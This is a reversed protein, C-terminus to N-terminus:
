ALRHLGNSADVASEAPTVRSAQWDMIRDLLQIYYLCFFFICRAHLHFTKFFGQIIINPTPTTTATAATNSKYACSPASELTLSQAAQHSRPHLGSPLQRAPLPAMLSVPCPLGIGVIVKRNIKVALQWVVALVHEKRGDAYVHCHGHQVLSGARVCTLLDSVHKPKSGSRFM